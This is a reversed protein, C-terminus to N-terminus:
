AECQKEVAAKALIAAGIAGALAPDYDPSKLAKFGLEREIRRAVGINKSQGGTFAFEKEVGLRDLLRVARIAMASCYAALVSEVSWGARLLGIAESKAYVVCTSSVPEPEKDIQFSREGIEEIPVGLLDAFVEMGRGTSAACKDNMVFSRLKGVEDCLIAKIDQGGIDLITRLSPGYIFNAGIAHCTIETITTQAMPVNVRGYGTGVIYDIDGLTMGTGDLTFDLAKQASGRSSSGTRINCYAYLRDDVMIAVESSVSGVDVGCTIVEGKRYDMNSVIVRYELRKWWENKDM